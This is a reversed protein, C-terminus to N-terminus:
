VITGKINLSPQKLEFIVNRPTQIYTGEKSMINDLNLSVSSYNGGVKNKVKVKKVDVIGDIRNIIEYM